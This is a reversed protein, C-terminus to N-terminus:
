ESIAKTRMAAEMSQGLETDAIVSIMQQRCRGENMSGKDLAQWV